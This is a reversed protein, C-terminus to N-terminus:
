SRSRPGSGAPSLGSQRLVRIIRAGLAGALAAKALDLPIFPAVGAAFARGASLGTVLCLQVTGLLYTCGLCLLMAGATRLIGPAPGHELFSGALYVGPLFGWLYGGSPGFLIFLGGRGLSFVPAGAAGLLLYAAVALFGARGGLLVAALFVGLLQGTLPVPSFPLPLSVQALVAILATFFAMRALLTLPM